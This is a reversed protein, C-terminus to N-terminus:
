SREITDVLNRLFEIEDDIEFGGCDWDTTKATMTLSDIRNNLENVIERIQDEANRSFFKQGNVTVM